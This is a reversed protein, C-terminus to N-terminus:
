RCFFVRRESDLRGLPPITCLAAAWRLCPMRGLSCPRRQLGPRSRFIVSMVAATNIDLAPAYTYNLSLGSVFVFCASWAGSFFYCVSDLKSWAWAQSVKPPNLIHVCILWEDRCHGYFVDKDDPFLNVKVKSLWLAAARHVNANSLNVYFQNAIIPQDLISNMFQHDYCVLYWSTEKLCSVFYILFFTSMPDM